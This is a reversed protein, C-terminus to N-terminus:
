SSVSPTLFDRKFDSNRVDDLLPAATHLIYDFEGKSIAEDWTGEAAYDSIIVFSLKGVYEPHAAFIEKEKEASRISGTVEHGQSILQDIITAAVFGNAGTVLTKPM